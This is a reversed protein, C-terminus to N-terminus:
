ALVDYNLKKKRANIAMINRRGMHISQGLSLASHIPRIEHSGLAGKSGIKIVLRGSRYYACHKPRLISRYVLKSYFFYSKQQYGMFLCVKRHTEVRNQFCFMFFVWNFPRKLYSEKRANCM